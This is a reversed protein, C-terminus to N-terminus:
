KKFHLRHRDYLQEQIAVLTRAQSISDPLHMEVDHRLDENLRMLFQSFLMTESINGEHM